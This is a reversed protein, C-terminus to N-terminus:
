RPPGHLIEKKVFCRDFLAEFVTVIDHINQSAGQAPM